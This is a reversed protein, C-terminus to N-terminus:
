CKLEASSFFYQSTMSKGLTVCGPKWSSLKYQTRWQVLQRELLHRLELVMLEREWNLISNLIRNLIMFSLPWPQSLVFHIQLM